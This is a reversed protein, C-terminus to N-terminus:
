FGYGIGIQTRQIKNGTEVIGNVMEASIFWRNKRLQLTQNLFAPQEGEPVEKDPNIMYSYAYSGEYHLEITLPLNIDFFVAPGGAVYPYSDGIATDEDQSEVEIGCTYGGLHVGLALQIHNTSVVAWGFNYWGLLSTLVPLGSKNLLQDRSEEFLPSILQPFFDSILKLRASTQLGGYRFSSEYWAIDVSYMTVYRDYAKDEWKNEAKAFIPSVQWVTNDNYYSKSLQADTKSSLLLFGAILIVQNIKMLLM